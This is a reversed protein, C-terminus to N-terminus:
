DTMRGGGGVIFLGEGCGLVAEIWGGRGGTGAITRSGGFRVGGDGLAGGRRSSGTRVFSFSGKGYM